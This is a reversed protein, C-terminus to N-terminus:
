EAAATPTRGIRLAVVSAWLIHRRTRRATRQVLMVVRYRDRRLGHPEVTALKWLREVDRPERVAIRMPRMIARCQPQAVGARRDARDILTVEECQPSGGIVAVDLM